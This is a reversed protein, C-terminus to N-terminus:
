RESYLKSNTIVFKRWFYGFKLIHEEALNLHYFNELIRSVLRNQIILTKDILIELGFAHPNVRLRGIQRARRSPM